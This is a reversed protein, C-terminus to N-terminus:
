YDEINVLSVGVAESTDLCTRCRLQRRESSQLLRLRRLDSFLNWATMATSCDANASM